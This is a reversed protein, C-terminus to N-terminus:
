PYMCVSNRRPLKEMQALAQRRLVSDRCHTATFFLPQLLGEDLSVSFLRWDAVESSMIYTCITLIERFRELYQDFISAETYLCTASNVMDMKVQTRLMALGHQERTSLRLNPKHMFKWLLTDLDSFTQHLEAAKAFAEIAVNGHERYVHSDASTRFFHFM